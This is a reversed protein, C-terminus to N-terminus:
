QVCCRQRRSKKERWQVCYHRRSKQENFVTINDVTKGWEVCYHRRSKKGMSFVVMDYAKENFVAIDDATKISCVVINDSKKDNVM